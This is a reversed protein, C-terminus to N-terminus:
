QWWYLGINVYKRSEVNQIWSLIGASLIATSLIGAFIANYSLIGGQKQLPLVFHRDNSFMKCVM